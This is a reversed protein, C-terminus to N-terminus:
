GAPAKPSKKPGPVVRPMGNAACSPIRSLKQDSLIRFPRSSWALLSVAFRDAAKRSQHGDLHRTRASERRAESSCIESNTEQAKKSRARTQRQKGHGMAHWSHSIM